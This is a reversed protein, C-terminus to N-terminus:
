EKGVKRWNKEMYIMFIFNNEKKLKRNFLKKEMIMNKKM